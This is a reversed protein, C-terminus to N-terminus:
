NKGSHAEPLIPWPDGIEDVLRALEDIVAPLERSHVFDYLQWYRDRREHRSKGL